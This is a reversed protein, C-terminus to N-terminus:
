ELNRKGQRGMEDALPQYSTLLRAPSNRAALSSCAQCKVFANSQSNPTGMSMGLINPTKAFYQNEPIGGM